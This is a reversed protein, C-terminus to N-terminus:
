SKCFVLSQSQSFFRFCVMIKKKKELKRFKQKLCLILNTNICVWNRGLIVSILAVTCNIDLLDDNQKKLSELM